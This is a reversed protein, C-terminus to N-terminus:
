KSGFEIPLVLKSGGRLITVETHDGPDFQSLAEMYSQMSQIQFNGLQIIMDGRQLGAAAAAKGDLVGDVRLGGERSTYDPVIGLTVKFGVKGLSSSSQTAVYGPKQGTKDLYTIVKEITGIIESEGDLNLQDPTDGPMHYDKHTGTFFFLVPIGANYFSTHDSPGRGTSDIVLNYDHAVLKPLGAWAGSTGMGGMTLTRTMPDLRGVMDMNIMFAIHASDLHEQRIMAKSGYLGLEEGSFHVLLYNFHNVARADKIWRALEMLAATGSANDDAGPHLKHERLANHSLSNGDEGYGLHDYHAGIVVTYKAHNDIFACINTGTRKGKRLETSVELEVTSETITRVYLEYAHHRLFVVPITLPDFSNTANFSPEIRAGFADYFIVAKAGAAAAQRAMEYAAQEWEYHPSLAQRDEQYLSVLWVKDRQNFDLITTGHASGSGSFPFPFFDSDPTLTKDGIRLIPASAVEKGYIFTFPYALHGQWGAIGLSQYRNIIYQAAKQEGASGTRRGELSDSALVAVDQRLRERMAVDPRRAALYGSLIVVAMAAASLTRIQKNM